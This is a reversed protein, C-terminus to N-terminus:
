HAGTPCVVVPVVDGVEIGLERAVGSAVEITYRMSAPSPFLTPYSEPRADHVVGVVRNAADLFIIDIAMSMDKMWFNMQMDRDFVFLAGTRPPLSAVGSLGRAHALDHTLTTLMFEEQGLHAMSVGSPCAPPLVDRALVLVAGCIVAIGFFLLHPFRVRSTM